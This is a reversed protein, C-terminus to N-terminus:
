TIKAGWEPSYIADLSGWSGRGTPPTRQRKPQQAAIHEQLRWCARWVKAQRETPTLDEWTM